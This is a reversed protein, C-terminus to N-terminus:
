KQRADRANAWGQHLTPAATWEGSSFQCICLVRFRFPLPPHPTGDVAARAASRTLAGTSAQQIMAM